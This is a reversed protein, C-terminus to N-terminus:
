RIVTAAYNILPLMVSTKIQTRMPARVVAWGRHGVNSEGTQKWIATICREVTVSRVELQVTKM